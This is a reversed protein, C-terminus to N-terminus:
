SLRVAVVMVMGNSCSSVPYSSRSSALSNVNVSTSTSTVATSPTPPLQGFTIYKLIFFHLYSSLHSSHSSIAILFLCSSRDVFCAFSDIM